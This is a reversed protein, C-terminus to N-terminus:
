AAWPDNDRATKADHCHRHLLQRNHKADTGGYQRPIIHDMEILDGDKFFLGCEFCTGQQKKLLTAVRSAIEPHRGLRASWYVWNGDYPSRSGQVKVHRKIPREDHQYLRLDSNSPQFTWGKEKKWYKQTIWKKGKKPHRRKAWAFLMAFLTTRTKSFVRKSAVTSFYNTWGKIVPNLRKILAEQKQSKHRDIIERLSQTHKEIARKNPKIITKFGLMEGRNNKGSKTKGIPYQRINHGLFDFGPEGESVALTHTIRTKSPKLKLGMPKLWEEIEIKCQQIIKPDEHLVVFDDCYRVVNPTSRGKNRAFKATIMTELGHLAINALLPSAPGGQMTGEETPLLQGGDLVGAKLWTKIQRRLTPGTNIKKLLETHCIRDFCKEIDADLVYKAKSRIDNFIAQIADQCSRGPRFGYSNPEFRAEWEPELAIKVLTQLAREYLTPIGLPRQEDTGPKPIWVRRVPKAKQPIKLTRALKLRAPPLLSKIGDVGATAKGQNDQTVKRVALLKASQSNMLLRQLKRATKVDGRGSAQYIRKQLKFMEREVKKWPITNWGYMPIETNM